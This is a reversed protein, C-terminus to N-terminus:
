LHLLIKHGTTSGITATYGSNATNIIRWGVEDWWRGGAHWQRAGQDCRSASDTLKMQCQGWGHRGSVVRRRSRRRCFQEFLKWPIIRTPVAEVDVRVEQRSEMPQNSLISQNLGAPLLLRWINPARKWWHLRGVIVYSQPARFINQTSYFPRTMISWSVRLTTSSFSLSHIIDAKMSAWLHFRWRHNCRPVYNQSGEPYDAARSEPQNEM